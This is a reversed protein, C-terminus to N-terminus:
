TSSFRRFTMCISPMIASKSRMALSRSRSILVLLVPGVDVIGRMEGIRGVGLSRDLPALVELMGGVLQLNLEVVGLVRQRLRELLELLDLQQVVAVPHALPRGLGRDLLGLEIGDTQHLGGPSRRDSM